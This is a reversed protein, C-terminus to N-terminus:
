RGRSVHQLHHLEDDCGDIVCHAMVKEDDDNVIIQSLLPYFQSVVEKINNNCSYSSISKPTLDDSAAAAATHASPQHSSRVATRKECCNIAKQFVPQTPVLSFQSCPVCGVLLLLMWWGIAVM